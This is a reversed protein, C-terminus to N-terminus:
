NYKLAKKTEDSLHVLYPNFSKLFLNLKSITNEPRKVFDRSLDLDIITADDMTLRVKVPDNLMLLINYMFGAEESVILESTLNFDKQPLGILTIAAIKDKDITKLSELKPFFMAFFRSHIKKFNSYRISNKSSDWYNFIVPLILLYHGLLILIFMVIGVDLGLNWSLNMGLLLGVILAFCLSVLLPRYNIKKGFKLMIIM